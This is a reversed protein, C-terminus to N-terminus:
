SICWLLKDAQIFHPNFDPIKSLITSYIITFNVCCTSSCSAKLTSILLVASFGTYLVQCVWHLWIHTRSGTAGPIWEQICNHMKGTPLVVRSESPNYTTIWKFRRQKMPLFIGEQGWWLEILINNDLVLCPLSICPFYCHLRLLHELYM